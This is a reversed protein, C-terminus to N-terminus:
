KIKNNLSSIIDSLMETLHQESIFLFQGCCFFFVMSPFSIYPALLNEFSGFTNDSKEKAGKSTYAANNILGDIKKFDKIVKKSIKNVETQNSIDLTYAGIKNKYKKILASKLKENKITDVDLLIINAGASSLINAYQSGLLGSAGTIVINRGKLDFLKSIIKKDKM